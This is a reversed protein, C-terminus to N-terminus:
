KIEFRSIKQLDVLRVLRDEYRGLGKLFQINMDGSVSPPSEVMNEKIRVVGNIRDVIFGFAMKEESAVVIRTQASYPLIDLGLRKRMDIVPIMEGRLSIIGIIFEPARPIETIARMRVIERVDQLSVGYEEDSLVFELVEILPAEFAQDLEEYKSDIDFAIIEEKKVPEQLTPVANEIPPAVVSQPAAPVAKGEQTIKNVIQGANLEQEQKEVLEEKKQVLLENQQKERELERAKKRIKVLDM